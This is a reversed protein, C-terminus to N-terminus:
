HPKADPSLERDPAASGRLKALAESRAVQVQPDADGAQDYQAAKDLGEICALNRGATCAAFAEARVAGVAATWAAAEAPGFTRADLRKMQDLDELCAAWRKEACTRQALDHAADVLSAYAGPSLTPANPAMAGRLFLLWIAAAAIAATVVGGLFSVARSKRKRAKDDMPAAEATGKTSRGDEKLAEAAREPNALLADEAAQLAKEVELQAQLLTVQDDVPLDPEDDKALPKEEEKRARLAEFLHNRLVRCMWRREMGPKPGKGALVLQMAVVYAGHQIDEALDPDRVRKLAMRGILDYLDPDRLFAYRADSPPTM